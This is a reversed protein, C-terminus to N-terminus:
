LVLVRDEAAGGFLLVVELHNLGREHWTDRLRRGRDKNVRKSKLAVNLMREVSHRGAFYKLPLDHVELVWCQKLDLISVM